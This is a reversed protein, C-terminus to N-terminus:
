VSGGAGGLALEDLLAELAEDSLDDLAPAGALLGDDSSWLDGEELETAYEPAVPVAVSPDSSIGIGIALAAVAAASLGWWSRNPVRRDRRVAAIVGDALGAPARLRASYLVGALEFELACEGCDAVHAEVLARTAAEARGAAVDPILERLRGCDSNNM